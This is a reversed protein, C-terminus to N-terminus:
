GGKLYEVFIEYMEILELAHESVQKVRETDAAGDLVNKSCHSILEKLEDTISM